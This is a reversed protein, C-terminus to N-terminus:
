SHIFLRPRGAFSVRFHLIAWPGYNFPELTTGWGVTLAPLATVVLGKAWINHQSRVFLESVTGQLVGVRVRRTM